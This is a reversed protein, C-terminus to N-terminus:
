LCLRFKFIIQVFGGDNCLTLGKIRIDGLSLRVALFLPNIYGQIERLIM